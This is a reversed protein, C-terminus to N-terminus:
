PKINYERIAKLKDIIQFDYNPNDRKIRALSGFDSRNPYEYIGNADKWVTPLTKHRYILIYGM